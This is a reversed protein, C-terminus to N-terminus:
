MESDRLLQPQPEPPEPKVKGIKSPLDTISM